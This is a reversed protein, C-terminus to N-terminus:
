LHWTHIFDDINPLLDVMAHIAIVLWLNKTKHYLIGLFLGAISMYAITYCCFFLYPLREEIGETGAGRLYLGPSHVIGFILAGAVIGGAPSKLLKTLRSQLLGRFFFEEILGADFLLYLFCLPLGKILQSVTFGGQRLQGTGGSLFYQFLLAAVSFIIFILVSRRSLLKLGPNKLGTDELTFGAAKYIFFPILVFVILKRLFIIITASRPDSVWAAPLLQNILNGGYTIYFAILLVLGALVWPEAPFSNRLPVNELDRTMWWSLASFGLGLVLIAPIFDTVPLGFKFHLTIIALVYICLGSFIYRYSASSM